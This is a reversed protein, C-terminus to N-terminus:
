LLVTHEPLCVTAYSHNDEKLSVPAAPLPAAATWSFLNQAFRYQGAAQPSSSLRRRKKETGQSCESRLPLSASLVRPNRVATSQRHLLLMLSSHPLPQNAATPAMQQGISNSKTNALQLHIPFCQNSILCQLPKAVKHQCLQRFLHCTADSQAMVGETRLKQFCSLGSLHFINKRSVTLVLFSQWMLARKGILRVARNSCYKQRQATYPWPMKRALSSNSKKM